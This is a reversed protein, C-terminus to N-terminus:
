ATFRQAFAAFSSPTPTYGAPVPIISCRCDPHTDDVPVLTTITMHLPACRSCVREDARTVWLWDEGFDEFVRREGQVFARFIENAGLSAAQAPLGKMLIDITSLTSPLTSGSVVSGRLSRRFKDVYTDGWARLREALPIGLFAGALLLDRYSGEEPMEYDEVDLGGLSLEWLGFLLGFEYTDDEEEELGDLLDDEVETIAEDLPEILSETVPEVVAPNWVQQRGEPGMPLVFNRLFSRELEDRWSRLVAEYPAKIRRMLDFERRQLEAIKEYLSQQLLPPPQPEEM